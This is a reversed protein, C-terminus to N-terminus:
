KRVAIATQPKTTTNPRFTVFYCRLCPNTALSLLCSLAPDNSYPVRASPLYLPITNEYRIPM